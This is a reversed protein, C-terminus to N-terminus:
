SRLESLIEMENTKHSIFFSQYQRGPDNFIYKLDICHYKTFYIGYSIISNITM